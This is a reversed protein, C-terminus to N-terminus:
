VLLPFKDHFSVNQAILYRTYKLHAETEIAAAGKVQPIFLDIITKLFVM